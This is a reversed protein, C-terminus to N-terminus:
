WCLSTHSYSLTTARGRHRLVRKSHLFSQAPQLLRRHHTGGGDWVNCPSTDHFERLDPALHNSFGDCARSTKERVKCFLIALYISDREAAPMSHVLGDVASTLEYGFVDNMAEEKHALCDLINTEKRTMGNIVGKEVATLENKKVKNFIRTMMRAEAPMAKIQTPSGCEHKHYAYWAADQCEDSCYVVKDCASCPRFTAEATSTPKSCPSDFLENKNFAVFPDNFCNDCVYDMKHSSVATVIPKVVRFVETGVPIDELAFIGRGAGPIDSTSIKLGYKCEVTTFLHDVLAQNMPQQPPSSASAMIALQTKLCCSQYAPFSSHNTIPSVTKSLYPRSQYVLYAFLTTKENEDM